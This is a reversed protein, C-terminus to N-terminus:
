KRKRSRALMYAGGALVLVGGGILLINTPTFFTTGQPVDGGASAGNGQQVDQYSGAPVNHGSAFLPIVHEAANILHDFSEWFGGGSSSVPTVDTGGGVLGPTFNILGGSSTSPDGFTLPYGTLPDSNSDWGSYPQTTDGGGLWGNVDDLLSM